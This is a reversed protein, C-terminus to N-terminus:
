SLLILIGHGNSIEIKEPTLEYRQMAEKGSWSHGEHRIDWKIKSM